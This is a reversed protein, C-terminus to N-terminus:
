KICYKAKLKVLDGNFNNGDVNEPIGKVIVKETFQHLDWDINGISNESSYSAIWLPCESFEDKLFELYFKRGTYIIPKCGYKQECLNVWNRVGKILNDRGLKSNKEVDLVPLLDGKELKVTRCYLNFQNTSNADPSYFHYAGKVYGRESLRQWNHHFRKDIWKEGQTAKIFVYSIPHKSKYVQNWDIVGNHHSIDIGFLQKTKSISTNETRIYNRKKKATYFFTIIIATFLAILVFSYKARRSIQNIRIQSYYNATKSILTKRYYLIIALILVLLLLLSLSRVPHTTLFHKFLM